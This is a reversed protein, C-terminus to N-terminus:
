ATAEVAHEAREDAKEAVRVVAEAAGRISECGEIVGHGRAYEVHDPVQGPRQLDVLVRAKRAEVLEEILRWEPSELLRRMQKGATQQQATDPMRRRLWENFWQPYDDAM